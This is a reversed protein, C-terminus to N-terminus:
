GIPPLAAEAVAKARLEELEFSGTMAKVCHGGVFATLSAGDRRARALLLSRRGMDVGQGVRVALERTRRLDALLAVVAATASGTAPDEIIGDLPAFMRAQLDTGAESADGGIDRTYAYVADAGNLPLHAAYAALDPRARRLAERSALEVVLFPLGVSIVQPAHADTLVDEPRLMLLAAAAEPALWGLRSLPEPATLEAGVVGSGDRLLRVPVLGAEEEFVLQVPVTENRAMMEVALVFATGVNPHGAFPVEVRPTFIRVRAAHAPDRPPLIFTTESLNFESAVAQMAETSLGEANLIVAVPNGGFLRDTFVDATAFHRLM